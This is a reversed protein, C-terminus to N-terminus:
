TDSHYEYGLRVLTWLGAQEGPAEDLRAPEDLDDGARPLCAFRRENLLHQPTMWSPLEPM